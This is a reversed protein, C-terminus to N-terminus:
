FQAFAINIAYYHKSRLLAVSVKTCTTLVFNNQRSVEFDCCM